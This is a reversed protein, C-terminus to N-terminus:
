RYAGSAYWHTHLYLIESYNMKDLSCKAPEAELRGAKKKALQRVDEHQDACHRPNRRHKRKTHSHLFVLSAAPQFCPAPARALLADNWGPGLISWSGLCAEIGDGTAGSSPLTDTIRKTKTSGAGM